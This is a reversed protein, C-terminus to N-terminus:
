EGIMNKIRELSAEINAIEKALEKHFLHCMADYEIDFVQKRRGSEEEFLDLEESSIRYGEKLCKLKQVKIRDSRIWRRVTEPSVCYMDAVQNVTYYMTIREDLKATMFSSALYAVKNLKDWIQLMKCFVM